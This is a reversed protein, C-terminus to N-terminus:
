LRCPGAREARPTASRSRDARSPSTRKGGEGSRAAKAASSDRALAEALARAVIEDVDSTDRVERVDPGRSAAERLRANEARLQRLEAQAASESSSASTPPPPSGVGLAQGVRGLLTAGDVASQASPEAKSPSAARSFAGLITQLAASGVVSGVQTLAQVTSQLFNMGHDPEQRAPPGTLWISPPTPPFAQPGPMGFTAGVSAPPVLSGDMVYPKGTGAGQVTLVQSLMQLKQQERIADRVTQLAATAYHGKGSGKPTYASEWTSGKCYKGKGKGKGNYEDYGRGYAGRDSWDHGRSEDNWGMICLTDPLGAARCLAAPSPSCVGHPVFVHAHM